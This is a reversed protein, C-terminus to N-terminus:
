RKPIVDPVAPGVLHDLQAVDLCRPDDCRHPDDHLVILDGDDNAIIEGDQKELDLVLGADQLQGLIQERVNILTVRDPLDLTVTFLNM